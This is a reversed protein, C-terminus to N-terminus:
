AGCTRPVAAAINLGCALLLSGTVGLLPIALGATLLTGAAGGFTNLGYGLGLQESRQSVRRALVMLLPFTGGMCATPIAVMCLVVGFAGLHRGPGGAGIATTLPLRFRELVLGVSCATIAIAIETLAYARRVDRTRTAWGGFGWAGLALGVMFAAFVTASAHVTSGFVIALARAWLTEYGLAAAGSCLAAFALAAPIRPRMGKM